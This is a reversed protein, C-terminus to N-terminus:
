NVDYVVLMPKHDSPMVGSSNRTDFIQASKLVLWAAGKSSFVYDIRSNRTCGDCNGAYNLKTPAAKWADHHDTAMTTYETTGAQMNYDGAAIRAQAWGNECTKLAKVEATRVASSELGLHASWVNIPRGNVVVGIHAAKRGVGSNVICNSQGTLSTQALLQNGRDDYHWAWTIGTKTKLRGAIATAMTRDDIENLSIVDANWKAIWDILLDMDNVGDTRRGGHHTNWHLLRLTKSGSSPPPSDEEDDDAPPPPPPPASAGGYVVTLVPRSGASSSESNHFERYSMHTSAGMDVLAIRSWRSESSRVVEQVLTTVDLTVKSGVTGTVTATAYQSGFDGGQKSWSYGSKRLKWTASDQDFSSVIRYASLTRTQSNGGKVTLTLTASQITSNKPVRTETDFKLLIRRAYELDDSARTMLQQTGYNTTALSGGRITTDFSETDPADLVVTTQGVASAPIVFLAAAAVLAAGCVRLGRNVRHIM